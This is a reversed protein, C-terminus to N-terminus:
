AKSVDEGSQPLPQSDPLPNTLAKRLADEYKSEMDSWRSLGILIGFLTFFVGKGLALPQPSHFLHGVIDTATVITLGYACGVSLPRV